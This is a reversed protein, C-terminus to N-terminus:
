YLTGVQWPSLFDLFALIWLHFLYAIAGLMALLFVLLTAWVAGLDEVQM